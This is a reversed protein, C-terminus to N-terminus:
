RNVREISPPGDNELIIPVHDSSSPGVKWALDLFISPSSLTLDTSTFTSNTSHYYTQSQDNFLILNTKIILDELHICKVNVEECGWM